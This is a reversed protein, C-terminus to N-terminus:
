SGARPTISRLLADHDIPKVLHHDFGAARSRRQDEDQGYGTVAIIVVKDLGHESRLRSAVQYGDMGPLGIDLLVFEPLFARAMGLASPGDHAMQVEHGRRRLLRATGHASDVNDDVVLIRRPVSPLAATAKAPSSLSSRYLTSEAPAAPLRVIFESGNGLGESMASVSGGHMETLSRVLTLGIGLGGESRALSRDGQAFLEFMGPLKEAPIGVGNDRVSFVIEGGERRAQLVIRGGSETYKAANTLLNVLIQELRTPDAEVFLAGPRFSLTLEHQREEVVPRVAEVASNLIAAADLREKRLQIKGRTIRSVDLLDDILRTLHRLQRNIVEMSWEVEEAESSGTGLNVANGIAALPNRLEHALMALFEDKRQDNERLEQYLRANEIAGSAIQALQVLLAEDDTGFEGDVKDSLQVVGLNRANRGILPVVLAGKELLPNVLQPGLGDLLPHPESAARAIRVPSQAREALTTLGSVAPLESYSNGPGDKGSHSIVTTPELGPRELMVSTVAERAGILNRAEETIIGLVSPVDHAANLRTSVAALEQLQTTRRLAAEEDRKRQTIDLVTGVMRQPYRGSADFYARGRAIVCRVENKPHGIIRYETDFAGSGPSLTRQVDAEVRARDDPHVRELFLPYTVVVDPPLGFIAKCQSSWVLTGTELNYDWAGLNAAEVAMRLREESERLAEEARKRETIDVIIGPLRRLVGFADWEPEGRAAVWRFSGNPPCLRYEAEFGKHEEVARQIAEVVRPRDEPHIVRTFRELPSGVAEEPVIGFIRALNRDATVEDRIVDWDWAGIEAAGLSAELRLRAEALNDEARGPGALKEVQHIIYRLEGQASLVPLNLSKWKGESSRAAPADFRGFSYGQIILFDPEHAERVRELSARLSQAPAADPLKPPGGLISFFSQGIVQERRAGVTQLYAETVAVATFADDPLLVLQLGPSSEFLAKFDLLFEDSPIM